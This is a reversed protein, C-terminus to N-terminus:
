ARLWEGIETGVFIYLSVIPLEGIVVASAMKRFPMKAIGAVYCIADTPVLPFASWGMVFWYAYKSQMKEKIRVMQKPYKSELYEDYSGLAPFSYVLYAGVVIGAVSTIFVAIPWEPFSIAGALVFPTCPILIAARFLSLLVYVTFAMPGLGALFGAITDRNLIEPNLGLVILLTIGLALWVTNLHRLM